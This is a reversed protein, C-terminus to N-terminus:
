FRRQIEYSNKGTSKVLWGFRKAQAKVVQHSYEQKLQLASQQLVEESQSGKLQNDVFRLVQGSDKMMFQVERTAAKESIIRHGANRLADVFTQFDLKDLLVINTQMTWCPM